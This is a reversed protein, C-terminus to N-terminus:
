GFDHLRKKALGYVECANILDGVARVARDKRAACGGLRLRCLLATTPSAAPM